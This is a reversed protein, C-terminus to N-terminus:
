HWYTLINQFEPQDLYKIFQPDNQYTSPTYSYGRAISKELQLLAENDDGVAEYYRALMYETEGFNFRDDLMRLKELLSEAKAGNGRETHAVALMSLVEQNSTELETAKMNSLAKYDQLHYLIRMKLLRDESISKEALIQNFYNRASDVELRVLYEKATHYAVTKWRPIGNVLKVKDLYAKLKDSQGTRVYASILPRHLGVDPIDEKVVSFSDIVKDYRELEVDALAKVYYRYQCFICDRINMKDMSIRNYITDIAQPKNVYQLAFVMVSANTNMHFPALNYEKQILSYIKRNDGELLAQYYNILNRQRNNIRVNTRVANFLSDATEYLGYNYYYAIREVQPEFYNPDEEVAMDLLEIYRETDSYNAKAELFYQYAEFKPPFDQLNLIEQDATILYGLIKQKLTEICDLPSTQDCEVPQFSILTNEINGDTISSQFILKDGKLFYNGSIVKAPKFYTKLVTENDVKDETSKIIEIYDSVIEPSVVQALKNETIGHIIWDASMKGIIDMETDGTNNGFKLIGIKDSASLEPLDVKAKFASNVILTFVVAVLLAVLLVSSLYMQQFASPKRKKGKEVPQKKEMPALANKWILFLYLPLGVLLALILYTQSIQPLGLPQWTVALVQILVWSSVIYISLKKLVGKESCEKFFSSIKM